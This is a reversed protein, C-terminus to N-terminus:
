SGQEPICSTNKLLYRREDRLDVLFCGDGTKVLQFRLPAGLVRGTAAQNEPQNGPNHQLALISSRTLADDALPIQQGGFIGSLTKGLAARSAQDPEVIVAPVGPDRNLGKCASLASLTSVLLLSVARHM